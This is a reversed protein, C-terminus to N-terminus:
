PSAALREREAQAAARLAATVEVATRDLTDNWRGVATVMAEGDRFEDEDDVFLGLFKVLAAMAARTDDHEWQNPARGAAVNMGGIVCVPCGAEPEPLHSAHFFGQYWGVHEIVDAAQDLIDATSM